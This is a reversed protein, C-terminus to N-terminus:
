FLSGQDVPPQTTKTPKKIDKPNLTTISVINSEKIDHIRGDQDKLTVQEQEWRLIQATIKSLYRGSLLYKIRFFKMSAGGLM